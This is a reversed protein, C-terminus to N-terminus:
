PVSFRGDLDCSCQLSQHSLMGVLALIHTVRDDTVLEDYALACTTEESSVKTFSM